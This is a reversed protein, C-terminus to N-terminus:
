IPHLIAGTTFDDTTKNYTLFMIKYYAKKPRLLSPNYHNYHCLWIKINENFAKLICFRLFIVDSRQSYVTCLQMEDILPVYCNNLATNIIYNYRTWQKVAIKINSLLNIENNVPTITWMSIQNM